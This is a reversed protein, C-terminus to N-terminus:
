TVQKAMIKYAIRSYRMDPTTHTRHLSFCDFFFADGPAFVPSIIDREKMAESVGADGGLYRGPNGLAFSLGPQERGCPTVAVWSMARYDMKHANADQHWVHPLVQPATYYIESPVVAFKGGTLQTFVDLVDPTLWKIQEEQSLIGGSLVGYKRTVHALENSQNQLVPEIVAQTVAPPILNRWIAVGHTKVCRAADAATRVELHTTM